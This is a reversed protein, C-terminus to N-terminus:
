TRLIELLFSYSFRLAQVFVAMERRRSIAEEAHQYKCLLDLGIKEKVEAELELYAQPARQYDPDHSLGPTQESIYHHLDDLFNNM